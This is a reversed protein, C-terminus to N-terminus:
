EVVGVATTGHVMRDWVAELLKLTGAPPSGEAYAVRAYAGALRRYDPGHDPFEGALRAAFELPTEDASRGNGRDWAWSDLAAFTYEVLEAPDRGDATGTAFPDSFASFPPPRVPGVEREEQESSCAAGTKKGFLNAWWDRIADLWRQAWGTFPALYKLVALV